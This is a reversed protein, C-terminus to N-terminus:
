LAVSEAVLVVVKVQLMALPERGVPKDSLENVPTILPVGDLAPVKLKVTLAVFEAPIAVFAKLMVILAAATFSTIVVDLKGPPVRM